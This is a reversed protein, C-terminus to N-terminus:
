ISTPQHNAYLRNLRPQIIWVGVPYFWLLFFAGAYEYFSVPRKGETLVLNKSVFYFLYALCGICALHLPLIVWAPATDAILLFVPAYVVPYVLAFILFRTGMRLEPKVISRLFFGMSGFWVLFCLFLVGVVGLYFFGSAGFDHWSQIRTPIVGVASFEAITPAVFFLLFLQWHKARLFVKAIAKV